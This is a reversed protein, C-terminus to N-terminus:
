SEEAHIYDEKGISVRLLHQKRQDTAILHIVIEQRKNDTLSEDYLMTQLQWLYEQLMRLETSIDNKMSSSTDIDGCQADASKADNKPKELADPNFVVNYVDDSYGSCRKSNACYWAGTKIDKIGIGCEIGCSAPCSGIPIVAYNGVTFLPKPTEQTVVVTVGLIAAQDIAAQQSIAGSVSSPCAGDYTRGSQM